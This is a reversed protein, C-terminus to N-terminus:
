PARITFPPVRPPLGDQSKLGEHFADVLIAFRRPSASNLFGIVPTAPQQASGYLPWVIAVGGLLTIFDRRRM